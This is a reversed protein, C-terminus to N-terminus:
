KNAGRAAAASQSAAWASKATTTAKKGQQLRHDHNPKGHTRLNKDSEFHPRKERKKSHRDAGHEM